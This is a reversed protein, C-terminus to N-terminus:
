RVDFLEHFRQLFAAEAGTPDWPHFPALPAPEVDIGWPEPEPGCLERKEAMLMALDMARVEPSYILPELSSLNLAELIVRVHQRELDAWSTVLGGGHVFVRPKLPSAIDPLYVEGLEHLLFAGAFVPPLLQSGRVCHEAVTYRRATQGTFRVKGALAHAIEEIPGVMEATLARPELKKGSLTQIWEGVHVGKDSELNECHM